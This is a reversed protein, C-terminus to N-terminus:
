LKKLIKLYKVAELNLVEINRDKDSISLDYLRNDESSFGVKFKSQSLLTIVKLYLNEEIGYNILLDYENKVFESLRNLKLSGSWGFDKETIENESYEQKKVFPRFVLIQINENSVGYTKQVDKVIDEQFFQFEEVLVGISNIKNVSHKREVLEQRSIEKRFFKRISNTKFQFVSM